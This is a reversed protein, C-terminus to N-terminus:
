ELRYFRVVVEDPFREGVGVFVSRAMWQLRPASTEFIPVTRFYVLDPAVTEGANLRAMAEPPAHRVGANQVYVLEGADTELTYRTDLQSFGDPQILQWDAGGPVVRGSIEPGEFRGEQIDVIRRRGQPIEGLDLPVGVKVRMEFAFTLTPPQALAGAAAGQEGGADATQAPSATAALLLLAAALSRLANPM